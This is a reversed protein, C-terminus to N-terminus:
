LAELEEAIALLEQRVDNEKSFLAWAYGFDITPGVSEETPEPKWPTVQDAVTRLAAALRAHLVPTAYGFGGGAEVASNIVSQAKPSLESM